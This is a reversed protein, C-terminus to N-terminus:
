SKPCGSSVIRGASTRHYTRCITRNDLQAGYMATCRVHRFRSGAMRERGKCVIPVDRVFMRKEVTAELYAEFRAKVQPVEAPRFGRGDHAGAAPVVALVVLAALLTRRV